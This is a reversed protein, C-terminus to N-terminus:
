SWDVIILIYDSATWGEVNARREVEVLAGARTESYGVGCGVANGYLAGTIGWNMGGPNDGKVPCASYDVIVVPKGFVATMAAVKSRFLNANEVARLANVQAAVVAYREVTLGSAVQAAVVPDIPVTPKPTAVAASSHAPAVATFLKVPQALQNFASTIQVTGFIAGAAVLTATGAIILKTSTKM